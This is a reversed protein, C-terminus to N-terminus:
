AYIFDAGIGTTLLKAWNLSNVISVPIESWKEGANQPPM